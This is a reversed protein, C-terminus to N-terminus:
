LSYFGEYNVSGQADEQGMLLENVEDDSMKEGSNPFPFWLNIDPITALSFLIYM